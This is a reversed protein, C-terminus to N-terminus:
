RMHIKKKNQVYFLPSKPKKLRTSDTLLLNYGNINAILFYSKDNGGWFTLSEQLASFRISSSNFPLFTERLLLDVHPHSM